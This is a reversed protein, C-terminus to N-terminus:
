VSNLEPVKQQKVLLYKFIFDERLVTVSKRNYAHLAYKCQAKGVANKVECVYNGVNSDSHNKILLEGRQPDKVLSSSVDAHSASMSSTNNLTNGHEGQTAAAPM